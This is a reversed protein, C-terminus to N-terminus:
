LCTEIEMRQGNEPYYHYSSDERTEEELGENIAM